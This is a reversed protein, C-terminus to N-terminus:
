ARTVTRINEYIEFAKERKLGIPLACAYAYWSKEAIDRALDAANRLIEIQMEEAVNVENTMYDVRM